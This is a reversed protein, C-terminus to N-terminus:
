FTADIIDIENYDSGICIYQVLNDDWRYTKNRDKVIYIASSNGGAPLDKFSEVTVVKNDAYTKLTNITQQLENQSVSLSKFSKSTPDWRYIKDNVMYVSTDNCPTQFEEVSNAYYVTTAPKTTVQVWNNDIYRWLVSTEKVFYFTDVPALMNTRDNDTNLTTIQQYANRVGKFDLCIKNTDSVFILQGDEVGLQNLKSEVTYITKIIASAM